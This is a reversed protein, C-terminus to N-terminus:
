EEDGEPAGALAARVSERIREDLQEALAEDVQVDDGDGDGDLDEGEMETVIDAVVEAPLRLVRHLFVDFPMVQEGDGEIFNRVASAINVAVQSNELEKEATLSPWNITYSDVAPLIGYGILKDVLDRVWRECDTERRSQIVKAWNDQDQSSALEGRESGILIRKPVRRAGAIQNLLVDVQKDPSVVQPALQKVDVGQVKIYRKLNM